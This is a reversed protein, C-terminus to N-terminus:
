AGKQRAGPSRLQTRQRHQRRDTESRVVHRTKTTSEPLPAHTALKHLARQAPSGWQRRAMYWNGQEDGGLVKGAKMEEESIGLVDGVELGSNDRSLLRRLLEDRDRLARTLEEESVDPARTGPMYDYFDTHPMSGRVRFGEVAEKVVLPNLEAADLMSQHLMPNYTNPLVAHSTPTHGSLRTRRDERYPEMKAARAEWLCLQAELWEPYHDGLHHMSELGAKVGPPVEDAHGKNGKRKKTWQHTQNGRKEHGWLLEILRQADSAASEKTANAKLFEIPGKPRENVAAQEKRTPHHLANYNPPAGAVRTKTQEAEKKWDVTETYARGVEEQKHM